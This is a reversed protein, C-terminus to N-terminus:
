AEGKVREYQQIILLTGWPLTVIVGVLFAILGISSLIGGALVTLLWPIFHRQVSMVSWKIAEIANMNRDVVHYLGPTGFITVAFQAAPGFFPIFGAVIVAILLLLCYALTNGFCDWASFIDGSKPKGGRTLSLLGRIYGAIFAANVIPIWGVLTFALTFLVLDGLNDKWLTTARSFHIGFDEDAFSSGAPGPKALQRFCYPCFSSGEAVERGCSECRM